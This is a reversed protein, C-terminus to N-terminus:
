SKGRIIEEKQKRISEIYDALEDIIDDSSARAPGVPMESRALLGSGTLGTKKVSKGRETLRDEIQKMMKYYSM